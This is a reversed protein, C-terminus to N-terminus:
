HEEWVYIFSLREVMSLGHTLPEEPNSVVRVCPHSRVYQVYEAMRETIVLDSDSLQPLM